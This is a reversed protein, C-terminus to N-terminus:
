NRAVRKLDDFWNQVLNIQTADEQGVPKVM